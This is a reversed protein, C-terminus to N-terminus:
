AKRRKAPHSAIKDAQGIMEMARATALEKAEEPTMLFGANLGQELLYEIKWSTQGPYQALRELTSEALTITVKKYPEQRPAPMSIDEMDRKHNIDYLTGM